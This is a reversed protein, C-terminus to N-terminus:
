AAAQLPRSCREVLRILPAYASNSAELNTSLQGLVKTWQSLFVCAEEDALHACFELMLPLHDPLENPDGDNAAIDLGYGRYHESLDILAPGRNKDDGFLHHTLHLAHEPTMDFTQVYIGQAETLDRTALDRMFNGIVIAESAELGSRLMENLSPTPSSIAEVLAEDPYSLLASLLKYYM